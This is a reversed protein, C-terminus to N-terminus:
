KVAIIEQPNLWALKAYKIYALKAAQIEEITEHTNRLRDLNKLSKEWDPINAALENLLYVGAQYNKLKPIDEKKITSKSNLFVKDISWPVQLEEFALGTITFQNLYKIRKQQDPITEQWDIIGQLVIKNATNCGREDREPPCPRGDLLTYTTGDANKTALPTNIVAWRTNRVVTFITNPANNYMPVIIDQATHGPPLEPAAQAHWAQGAVLSLVLLAKATKTDFSRSTNSTPVVEVFNQNNDNMAWTPGAM